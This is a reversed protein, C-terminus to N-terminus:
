YVRMMNLMSPYQTKINLGRKTLEYALAHEYLSELLGAGLQSHVNFIAGRIIYSLENETMITEKKMCIRVSYM